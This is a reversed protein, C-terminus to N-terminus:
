LDTFINGWSLFVTASKNIPLTINTVTQDELKLQIKLTKKKKVKFDTSILNSAIDVSGSKLTVRFTQVGPPVALNDLSSGDGTVFTLYPKKNMEVIFQVGNPFKSLDIKLKANTNPDAKRPDFAPAPPPTAEKAPPTAPHPQAAPVSAVAPQAPPPAPAPAPAAPATKAASPKAPAPKAPAPKTAAPKTDPSAEPVLPQIEGTTPLNTPTPQPAPAPPTPVPAPQPPAAAPNRHHMFYWGGAGAALVVVAAMAVLGALKGPLKKGPAQGPKNNASPPKKAGPAAPPQTPPPAPPHSIQSPAAAMTAEPDLKPAVAMPVAV